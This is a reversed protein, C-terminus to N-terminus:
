FNFKFHFNGPFGHFGHQQQQQGQPSIDEGRDYKGRM